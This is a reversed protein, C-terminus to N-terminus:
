NRWSAGGDAWVDKLVLDVGPQPGAKAQETAEDVLRASEAEIDSLVSEAVGLDLLRQRYAPLPDRKRWEEVEAAPRYKAPDARSHGGHRYTKAEILSPGEGSRARSLAAVATEYVADPDNGDVTVPPLGYAAARDAAPNPVATVSGIPTYEMYLNNECVFVVPLKWVTALNLAEHFAGINTTGDGFFCVAVQGTGRYQASWAAGTAIPLHAGIIAYSGMMGHDVSTLHMSGGKGAMLGNGRGMLEALIGTMPVGRALTHAHGRYTAFTYDDPRMAVGFGAAIAEQGLSLHSTGKVLNQLFLDYARKEMGRMRVMQRYLALRTPEDIDPAAHRTQPTIM